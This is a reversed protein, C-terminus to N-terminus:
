VEAVVFCVGVCLYLHLLDLMYEHALVCNSGYVGRAVPTVVTQRFEAIRLMSDATPTQTKIREQHHVSALVNPTMCGFCM